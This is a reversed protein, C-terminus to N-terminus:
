KDSKTRGQSQWQSKKQAKLDQWQQKQEPTLVRDFVKNMEAKAVAKQAFVDALEDAARNIAAEDGSEAAANLKDRAAAMANSSGKNKKRLAKMEKRLQKKQDETLNLEQALAAMRQRAGKADAHGAERSVESGYSSERQDAGSDALASFSISSTLLAMTAARTVCHQVTAM